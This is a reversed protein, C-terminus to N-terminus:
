DPIAYIIKQQKIALTVLRYFDHLFSQMTEAKTADRMFAIEHQLGPLEVPWIEVEEFYDHFRLMRFLQLDTAYNMLDDHQDMELSVMGLLSEDDSLIAFDLSM